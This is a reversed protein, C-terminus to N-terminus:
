NFFVHLVLTRSYSLVSHRSGIRNQSIRRIGLTPRNIPKRAEGAYDSRKIRRRLRNRATNKVAEKQKKRYGAYVSEAEQPIRHLRM